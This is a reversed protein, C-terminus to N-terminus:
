EDDRALEPESKKASSILYSMLDDLDQVSLRSTYDTPM